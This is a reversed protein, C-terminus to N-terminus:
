RYQDRHLRHHERRDGLALTLVVFLVFVPSKRMRASPTASSRELVGEVFNGPSVDGAPVADHKPMRQNRELGARLPYMDDLEAIAKRYAEEEGAGAAACNATSTKWISRSNKPM